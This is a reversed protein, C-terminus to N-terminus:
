GAITDIIQDFANLTFQDLDLDLSVPQSSHKVIGVGRKTDLYVWQGHIGMATFAERGPTHRTWWQARYSWDGNGMMGIADPGAAFADRDGGDQLADLISQDVVQERGCKGGNLMMVAFRALDRPCANLGGGAVLTGNRDLLVYTEGEAGIPYWLVKSMLDQFSQGTARNTVWNVVDTKPTQYAFVEGHEYRPDRELSVLFDYLNGTPIDDADSQLWGLVRGYRVIGSTPDAYDEVFEMSNTMDLVQRFTANAFSSSAALEPVWKVVPDDQELYDYAVAMLGFLGAFSKTASMMQHPQLPAMGNLYSEHAIGDPTVVVLSDTYSEILYTDLDATGGGPRPIQIAAIRSDADVAIPRAEPPCEVIASPYITRMNQYSWRNFPPKMLANSRNVRKDPPPPFGEMLGLEAADRYDGPMAAHYLRASGSSGCGGTTDPCLHTNEWRDFPALM